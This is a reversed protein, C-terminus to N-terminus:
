QMLNFHYSFLFRCSDRKEQGEAETMLKWPFSKMCPCTKSASGPGYWCSKAKLKRPKTVWRNYHDTRIGLTALELDWWSVLGRPQAASKPFISFPHLFWGCLLLIGLLAAPKSTPPSPFPPPVNPMQDDRLVHLMGTVCGLIPWKLTCKCHTGSFYLFHNFADM